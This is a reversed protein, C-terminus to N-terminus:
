GRAGQILPGCNADEQLEPLDATTIAQSFALSIRKYAEGFRPDSCETRCMWLATKITAIDQISLHIPSM